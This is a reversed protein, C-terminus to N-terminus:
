TMNCIPVACDLDFTEWGIEDPTRRYIEMAPLNEPVYRSNPLWYRYLYQWARDITHIDGVSHISALHCAPMERIEIDGEGRWGETISLCLDYRCLELPTVEPDDQSMGILTHQNIRGGKRGCWAVLREYAGMIRQPSEYANVIRIMAIRQRTFSRVTVELQDAEKVERLREVTYLPFGDVVQSNKSNKLPSVRDWTRATTGFHRKFVRSFVSASEFGCALAANDIRMTPNAKLLAAARELRLRQVCQHITEGTISAFLRHFHYPSFAAIEALRALSLDGTLNHRIHDIVLNIRQHYLNERNVTRAGTSLLSHQTREAKETTALRLM